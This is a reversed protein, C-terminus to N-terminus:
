PEMDVVVIPFRNNGFFITETLVQGPEVGQSLNKPNAQHGDAFTAVIHESRLFRHGSATNKVTILAWREGIENSMPAFYVLQFDSKKPRIRESEEIDFFFDVNQPTNPDFFLLREEALRAKRKEMKQLTEAWIATPVLSLSLFLILIALGRPHM